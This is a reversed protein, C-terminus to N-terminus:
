SAAKTPNEEKTENAHVDALRHWVRAMEILMARAVEDAVRHAMELRAEAFQRYQESSGM